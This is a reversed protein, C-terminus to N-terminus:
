SKEEHLGSSLISSSCCLCQYIGLACRLSRDTSTYLLIALDSAPQGLRAEEFNAFIAEGARNKLELWEQAPGSGSGQEQAGGVDGGAGGGVAGGRWDEDLWILMNATLPL